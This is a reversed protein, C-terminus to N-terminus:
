CTLNRRHRPELLAEIDTYRVGVSAQKFFPGYDRTLALHTLYQHRRDIEQMVQELQPQQRQQALIAQAQPDDNKYYTYTAAGNRLVRDHGIFPGTPQLTDATHCLSGDTKKGEYEIWAHSALGEWGPEAVWGVIPTVLINQRELFHTLFFALHYCVGAFQKGRVLKRELTEALDLIMQEEENLGERWAGEEAKISDIEQKRRRAQGM